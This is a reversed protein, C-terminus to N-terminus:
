TYELLLGLIFVSAGVTDNAHAGARQYALGLYDGAALGDLQSEATMDDTDIVDAVVAIEAIAIAGSNANPAEGDAAFLADSLRRMNGTGKSIFVIVAKTLTVFGTPIAVSFYVTDNQPDVLEAAAYDTFGAVNSALVM